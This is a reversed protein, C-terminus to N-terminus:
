HFRFSFVPFSNELLINGEEDVFFNGKTKLKEILDEDKLVFVQIKFGLSQSVKEHDIKGNKLLFDKTQFSGYCPNGSNVNVFCYKLSSPLETKEPKLLAILRKFM